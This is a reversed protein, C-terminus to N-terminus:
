KEKKTKNHNDKKIHIMKSNSSYQILDISKLSNLINLIETIRNVGIEILNIYKAIDKETNLNEKSLLMKLMDTGSKIATLPQNIEHSQTVLLAETTELKNDKINKKYLLKLKKKQIFITM